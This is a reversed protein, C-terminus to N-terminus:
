SLEIPKEGAGSAACVALKKAAGIEWGKAGQRRGPNEVKLNPIAFSTEVAGLALNFLAEDQPRVCLDLRHDAGRDVAAM